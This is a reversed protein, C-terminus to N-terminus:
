KVPAMWIRAETMWLRIAETGVSIGETQQKQRAETDRDRCPSKTRIKVGETSAGTVELAKTGLWFCKDAATEDTAVKFSM